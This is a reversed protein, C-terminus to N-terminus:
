KKRRKKSPPSPKKWIILKDGLVLQSSKLANWYIIHSAQTNYKSAISSLNDGNKIKHIVFKHSNKYNGTITSKFSASFEPAKKLKKNFHSPIFLIQSPQIISTSLKNATKINNISTKYHQAISSLSEGNSTTHQVWVPKRRHLYDISNKQLFRMTCETHKHPIHLHKTVKPNTIWRKLGRNLPHPDFHCYSHIEKLHIPYKTKISTFPISYTINPLKHGYAKPSSVIAKIALLKYIYNQTERPLKRFTYYHDSITDLDYSRKVRGLGADYSAIALNWKNQTNRYLWTLYALAGSTSDVIDRRGDYWWDIPVQQASATGPMMQWLGSAGVHSRALPNFASEIAPILAIETPLGHNICEQTIHALYPKSQQFITELNEPHKRYWKILTKVEPIHTGSDLQFNDRIIPWISDTPQYNVDNEHTIFGLGYCQSSCFLTFFFLTLYKKLSM